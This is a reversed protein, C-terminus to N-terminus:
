RWCVCMKKLFVKKLAAATLSQARGSLAVSLKKGVIRLFGCAPSGSQRLVQREQPVILFSESMREVM